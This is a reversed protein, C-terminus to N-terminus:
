GELVCISKEDKKSIVQNISTMIKAKIRKLLETKDLFEPLKFEEVKELKEEPSSNNKDLKFKRAKIKLDESNYIKITQPALEGLIQLDSRNVKIDGSLIKEKLSPNSQSIIEIGKCFHADRKITNKSVNFEDALKESTPLGNQAKSKVNDYGGRNKKIREYKYGRFYSLQQPSLNRRGLQNNIMWDKAEETNKFKKRLIKFPLNNEKCLYYRNHGDLLVLGDSSDWVILPDRCGESLLNLKLQEREENSIPTIFNRLEKHIKIKNM